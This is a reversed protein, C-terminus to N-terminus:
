NSLLNIEPSKNLQKIIIQRNNRQGDIMEDTRCNTEYRYKAQESLKLNRRQKDVTHIKITKDAPTMQSTDEERTPLLAAIAVPVLLVAAYGVVIKLFYRRKFARFRDNLYKWARDKNFLACARNFQEINEMDTIKQFLAEHAPKENRWLCLEDTQGKAASASLQKSILDAIHFYTGNVQKQRM